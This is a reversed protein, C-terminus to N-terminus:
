STRFPMLLLLRSVLKNPELFHKLLKTPTRVKLGSKRTGGVAVVETNSDALSLLAYYTECDSCNFIKILVTYFHDYMGDPVKRTIRM